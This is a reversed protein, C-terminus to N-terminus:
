FFRHYFVSDVRRQFLSEGDLWFEEPICMGNTCRFEHVECENFELKDWNEEDVGSLCQQHGNCIDRWDLCLGNSNCPLTEYCVIRGFHQTNWSDGTEKQKFQATIAESFSEAGHTLQYECNKGFIGLRSCNCLFRDDAATLRNNFYRAHKDVMGVDSSWELIESPTINEHRLDQFLKKEGQNECDTKDRKVPQSEGPRRCYPIEQGATHATTSVIM